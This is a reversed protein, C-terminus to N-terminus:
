KPTLIQWVNIPHFNHLLTWQKTTSVGRWTKIFIHSKRVSVRLESSDITHLDNLHLDIVADQQIWQRILYGSRRFFINWKVKLYRKLQHFIHSVNHVYMIYHSIISKITASPTAHLAFLFTKIKNIHNNIFRPISDYWSTLFICM